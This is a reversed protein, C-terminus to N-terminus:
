LLLMNVYNIIKSFYMSKYKVRTSNKQRQKLKKKFSNHMELILFHYDIM